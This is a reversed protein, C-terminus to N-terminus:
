KPKVPKKPIGSACPVGVQCLGCSEGKFGFAAYAYPDAVDDAYNNCRRKDHGNPSIAGAPCRKVCKGCLGGSNFFLCYDRHTAYPRESAPLRVNAIVSGVRVSKGVPTILGDCLGFTGLGAAYAAHRESWNSAYVFRESDM